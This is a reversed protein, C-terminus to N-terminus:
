ERNFTFQSEVARGAGDVFRLQIANEGAGLPIFDTTLGRGKGPFVTAVYGNSLNSVTVSEVDSGAHCAKGVLRIWRAASDREEVTGADWCGVKVVDMAITPAVKPPAFAVGPLNQQLLPLTALVPIQAPLSAPLRVLSSLTTEDSEEPRTAFMFSASVWTCVLLTIVSVKLFAFRAQHCDM